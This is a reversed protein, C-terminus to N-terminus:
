ITVHHHYDVKIESNPFMEIVNELFEKNSIKILNRKKFYEGIPLDRFWVTPYESLVGQSIILRDNLARAFVNKKEISEIMKHTPIPKFSDLLLSFNKPTFSFRVSKVISSPFTSHFFHHFIDIFQVSDQHIAKKFQRFPTRFVNLATGKFNYCKTEPLVFDFDYDEVLYLPSKSSGSAWQEENLFSFKLGDSTSEFRKLYVWFSKLTNVKRIKCFTDAYYLNLDENNVQLIQEKTLM